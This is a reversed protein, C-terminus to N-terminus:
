GLPRSTPQVNVTYKMANAPGIDFDWNHQLPVSILSAVPNQLKKALEATQDADELAWVPAALLLIGLRLAVLVSKRTMDGGSLAIVPEFGSTIAKRLFLRIEGGLL